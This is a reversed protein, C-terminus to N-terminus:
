WTTQAERLEEPTNLNAFWAARRMWETETPQWPLEAGDATLVVRDGFELATRLFVVDEPVQLQAALEGAAARLAPQLKHDGRALAAQLMWLVDVHILSVLPQLRGDAVAVAIRVMSSQRWLAVLAQLLGAPLLPMDVPLFIGYEASAHRCDRLAAEIGGMPGCGAFSDPLSRVGQPGPGRDGIVVVERCVAAMTTVASTLMTQGCFVVEAKDTGMRSSRGGALVYGRMERSLSRASEAVGSEPLRSEPM